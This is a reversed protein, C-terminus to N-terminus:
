NLPTNHKLLKYIDERSIPKAYLFGQHLECGCSALFEKQDETEVGEAVTGMGMNKALSIITSTITDADHDHALDKIFSRDIKLTDIPLRRLHNLSSYGTGFDDISIHIGINRIENLLSIWKEPDEMITTETVEIEIMEPTAGTERLTNEITKIFDSQNIQVGSVNVAIRDKLIGEQKWKVADSCVQRLVIEGINIILKTEEALPIFKDPNLLGETPHKWRVLAELGHVSKSDLDYKPQYHVIIEGTEIAVKLANEMAIRHMSLSTMDKSYYRYTNKGSNKAAYMATDANKSLTGQTEGDNPYISIGISGGLHFQKDEIEFPKQLSDLIKKAISSMEDPRDLNEFVFVFEDGGVRALTDDARLMPKLRATAEKLVKDGMDHGYSDNVNKFNDLDLFCVAVYSKLRRCVDISHDLRAGLLLRNPLATLTDHHALFNLRNENEKLQTIDSFIAIYNIIEGSDNKISSINLWEPYVNGDKKRNWINGQWYGNKLLMEWLESYFSKDHRGSKLIKPKKGLVDGKTYGTIETFARNIDIINVNSDTIIIAEQTNKFVATSLKLKTLMENFSDVLVGIENDSSVTIEQSFDGQAIKKTGDTLLKIPNVINFSFIIILIINMFAIFVIIFLIFIFKQFVIAQKKELIDKYDSITFAIINSKEDLLPKVVLGNQDFHVVNSNKNNIANEIYKNLIDRNEAYPKGISRNETDALIYLQKNVIKITPFNEQKQLYNQLESKYNYTNEILHNKQIIISESLEMTEHKIFHTLYLYYFTLILVVPIIFISLIFKLLKNTLTTKM